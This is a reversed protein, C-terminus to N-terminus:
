LVLFGFGFVGVCCAGGLPPGRVFVASGLLPPPVCWCLVLGAWAFLVVADAVWEVSTCCGLGVVLVAAPLCWCLVGRWSPPWFGVCCAGGHPPCVGVCCAGDHPLGRVFVARGLLVYTKLLFITLKNRFSLFHHLSKNKHQFIIGFMTRFSNQHTPCRCFLTHPGQFSGGLRFCVSKKCFVPLTLGNKSM